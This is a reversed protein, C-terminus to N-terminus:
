IEGPYWEFDCNHCTYMDQDEVHKVNNSGCDSCIEYDTISQVMNNVAEGLAGHVGQKSTGQLDKEIELLNKLFSKTM